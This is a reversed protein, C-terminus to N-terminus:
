TNFFVMMKYATELVNSNVGFSRLKRVLYLRQQSKKCILNVNESFKLRDDIVTGLYRFNNEVEVNEDGIVLPQFDIDCNNKLM